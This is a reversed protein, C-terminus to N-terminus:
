LTTGSDPNYNLVLQRGRGLGLDRVTVTLRKGPKSFYIELVDAQVMREFKWGAAPAELNYFQGLEAVSARTTYVLRGIQLDKADYAYTREPDATLGVPLPVDPFRQESSLALGSQTSPPMGSNQSSSGMQVTPMNPSWGITECAGLLLIMAIALSAKGKM